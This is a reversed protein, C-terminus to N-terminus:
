VQCCWKYKDNSNGEKLWSLCLRHEKHCAYILGLGSLGFQDLWIDFSASNKLSDLSTSLEIKSFNGSCWNHVDTTIKLKFSWSKESKLCFEQIIKLLVQTKLSYNQSVLPFNLKADLLGQTEKLEHTKRAFDNLKKLFNQILDQFLTIVTLAANRCNM